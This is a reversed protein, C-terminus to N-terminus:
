IKEWDFNPDDLPLVGRVDKIKTDGLTFTEHLSELTLSPPGSSQSRGDPLMWVKPKMVNWVDGHQRIRDKGHKTKGVLRVQKM